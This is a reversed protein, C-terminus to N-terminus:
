ILNLPLLKLEKANKIQIKNILKSISREINRTGIKLKTSILKTSKSKLLYSLILEEKSTLKLDITSKVSNKYNKAINQRLDSSCM